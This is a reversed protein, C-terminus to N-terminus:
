CVLGVILWEAMSSIWAGRSAWKPRTGTPCCGAEHEIEGVAARLDDPAARELYCFRGDRMAVGRELVKGDRKVFLRVPMVDLVENALM